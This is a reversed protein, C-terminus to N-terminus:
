SLRHEHLGNKLDMDKESCSKSGPCKTCGTCACSIGRGNMQRYLRRLVFFFAVAVIAATIITDTM